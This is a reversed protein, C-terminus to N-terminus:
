CQGALCCATHSVLAVRHLRPARPAPRSACPALRSARPAPRSAVISLLRNDWAGLAWRGATTGHAGRGAGRAWRNDWAGLAWRGAGRPQGM